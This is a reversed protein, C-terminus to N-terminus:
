IGRGCIGGKLRHDDHRKAFWSPSNYDFFWWFFWTLAAALIRALAVWEVSFWETFTSGPSSTSWTFGLIVTFIVGFLILSAMPVVGVVVKPHTSCTQRQPKQKLQEDAQRVRNDSGTM